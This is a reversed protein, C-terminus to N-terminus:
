SRNSMYNEKRKLKIDNFLKAVEKLALKNPNRTAMVVGKETYLLLEPKGKFFLVTEPIQVRAGAM